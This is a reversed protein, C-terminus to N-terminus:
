GRAQLGLRSSWPSINTKGRGVRQGRQSAYNEPDNPCVLRGLVELYDDLM